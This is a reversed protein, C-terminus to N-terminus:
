RDPQTLLLSASRLAITMIGFMACFELYDLSEYGRCRMDFIRALMPVNRGVYDCGVSKASAEMLVTCAARM